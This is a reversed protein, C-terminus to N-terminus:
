PGIHPAQRERPCAADPLGPRVTAAVLRQAGAIPVNPRGPFYAARAEDPGFDTIEGFDHQDLMRAMEAPRFRSIFPEGMKAALGAFTATIQADSDTLAALPQNYTLVVRTGALGQAMTALTAHIADATLYMTVGIWSFVAPQGSHFGARELGERLTQREFDVPAFVLGAPRKVGVEGLRQRKWEQTGPHDVEFVRLRSMLDGRRYAFSDLGAGLIVYQGVGSAAARAVIDEPFRARVCVWRSFALLYPRPVEARLRALLAVGEPGALDLALYDDM